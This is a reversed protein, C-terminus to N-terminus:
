NIKKHTQTNLKYFINTYWNDINKFILIAFIFLLLYTIFKINLKKTLSNKNNSSIMFPQNFLLGQKNIVNINEGTNNISYKANIEQEAM